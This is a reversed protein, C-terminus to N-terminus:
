RDAHRRCARTVRCSVQDRSEWAGIIAACSAVIALVSNGVAIQAVGFGELIDELGKIHSGLRANEIKCAVPNLQPRFIAGFGKALTPLEAWTM